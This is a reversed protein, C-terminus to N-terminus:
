GSPRAPCPRRRGRGRGSAPASGRHQLSDDFESQVVAQQQGHEGQQDHDGAPQGGGPQRDVGEGVDRRVQHLDEGLGLAQGGLFHLAVDGIGDLHGHGPQGADGPDARDRVEAQRHDVDIELVPHVDVQRPLQDALADHLRALADGLAEALRRHAGDGRAHAQDEEVVQVVGGALAAELLQPRQLVPDDLEVQLGHGAHGLDQADAAVLLLEVDVDPGVAQQAVVDRQGLHDLPHPRVVQVDAGLEDLPVGLLEHHSRLAQGGADVVQLRDHDLGLVAPGDVEGVDGLHADAAGHPAAQLSAVPGALHDGPHDDLQVSLVGRRHDGADLPLQVLDVADQGLAHADHGVVLLAAQDLGGDAGDAVGQQQAHDQHDQHEQEGQAPQPGAQDRNEGDGEGHEERQEAHRAQADAGVQHGQAPQGDGDAHDDVARDDDDLVHVPVQARRRGVRLPAHDHGGGAALHGTRDDEGDQDDDDDEQGQDGELADLALGEPGHGM